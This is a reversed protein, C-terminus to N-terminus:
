PGHAHSRSWRESRRTSVVREIHTWRTTTSRESFSTIPDFAAVTIAAIASSYGM